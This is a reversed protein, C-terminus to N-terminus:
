QVEFIENASDFRLYWAKEPFEVQSSYSEIARRKTYKQTQDLELSKWRDNFLKKPPFIYGGVPPYDKYHVLSFYLDWSADTSNKVIESVEGAAKHDSHYDLTTTTVVLTPKFLLVIEKVDALFEERFYNQGKKYAWSYMVHDLKTSRSIVAGRSDTSERQLVELLGQDPFGLFILDEPKLGLVRTSKLAEDHRRNALGIFENPSLKLNKDLRIVSGISSDGTTLYVVKVKGGKALVRQIFGGAILVEDDPHPALVLLRTAGDPEPFSGLRGHSWWWGTFFGLIWSALLFIALGLIWWKKNFIKVGKGNFLKFM